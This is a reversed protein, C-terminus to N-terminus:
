ITTGNTTRWTAAVLLAAASAFAFTVARKRFSERVCVTVRLENAIRPPPAQTEIQSSAQLLGNIWQQQEIAERCEDCGNLHEAFAAEDAPSLDGVLYNDLNSCYENM